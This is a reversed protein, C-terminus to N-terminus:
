EPDEPKRGDNEAESPSGDESVTYASLRSSLGQMWGVEDSEDGPEPEKSQRRREKRTRRDAPARPERPVTPDRQLPQDERELAFDEATPVELGTFEPASSASGGQRRSRESDPVIV